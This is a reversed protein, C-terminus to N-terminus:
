KKAQIDAGSINLKGGVNVNFQDTQVRTAQYSESSGSQHDRSQVGNQHTVKAKGRDTHRSIRGNLNANGATIDVEKAQLNASQATITARDDTSHIRIRGAQISGVVKGDLVQGKRETTTIKLTGNDERAIKNKGTIM